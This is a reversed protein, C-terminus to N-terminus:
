IFGEIDKPISAKVKSVTINLFGFLAEYMKSGMNKIKDFVVRVKELIRTLLSNFWIKIDKGM